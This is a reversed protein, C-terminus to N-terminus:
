RGEVREVPKIFYKLESQIVETPPNMRIRLRIPYIDTM